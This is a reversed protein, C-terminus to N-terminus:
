DMTLVINWARFEREWPEGHWFSADVSEAQKALNEITQNKAVIEAECAINCHDWATKLGTYKHKLWEYM